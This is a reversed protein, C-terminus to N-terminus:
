FSPDAEYILVWNASNGEFSINIIDTSAIKSRCIRYAAGDDATTTSSLTVGGASVGDGETIGSAVTHEDSSGSIYVVDGVAVGDTVVTAATDSLTATASMASTLTGSSIETGRLFKTLELPSSFKKVTYM